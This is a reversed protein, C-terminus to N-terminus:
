LGKNMINQMWIDTLRRDACDEFEYGLDQLYRIVAFSEPNQKYGKELFAIMKECRERNDLLADNIIKPNKQPVIEPHNKWVEAGIGMWSGIKTIADTVAGKYADGLDANDNGGFCEYYIGYEPITLTTKVVIMKGSNDIIESKIQWAGTGFVKNLRETVYISNITTLYSKSPHKKKAEAPLPQCLQQEQEKTIKKMEM